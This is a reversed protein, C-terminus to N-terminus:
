GVLHKVGQWIWEVASIGSFVALTWYLNGFILSGMFITWDRKNMGNFQNVGNRMYATVIFPDYKLSLFIMTLLDGHRMAWGILRALTGTRDEDRLSKIAEIGLWDTKSWDYFKMTAFCFLFSLVTMILGGALVGYFAGVLRDCFFIVAPYLVWDFVGVIVANVTHGLALTAVRGKVAQLNM